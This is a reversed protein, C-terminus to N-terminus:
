GSLIAPGVSALDRQGTLIMAIEFERRLIEITQQVGPAGSLSLGYCYPRGVLVASAGRALAKLVDTGRRIGGDMLVPIASDVAAVVAPLADISAIATDLNRGGHNSVILGDAGSGIAAVADEPAVIGKLLLPVDSVSRLWEVDDWSLQVRRTENLFAGHTPRSALHPTHLEDPLAFGSRAQRDRSGLVPTDVTLCLAKCGAAVVREVVDKTFGLDSQFYLQFWLPSTAVSAIEEIPTTTASSVVYTAGAAGAGAATAVEGEPHLLKHYATPALLIPFRMDTGLLTLSMDPNDSGALVRPIMGIRDFAERNWRVTIEDAAGSEVYERAMFTLVARAREEIEHLSVCGTIDASGVPGEQVDARRTTM